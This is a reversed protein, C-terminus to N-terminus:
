KVPLYVYLKDIVKNLDMPKGIHDNMGANLCKEIDDRFVNATMAVIPITKANPLNLDRILRTAEFGDMEPMQIDMFILDYREPTERFLRVAEVGNQACDIQLLTPELLALLIERNIEVDEALLIRRGAFIGKIDPRAEDAQKFALGVCKNITDAIASPFLPKSLFEDVGAQKAEKRIENWEAASFLVIRSSRDSSELAKLRRTLEIGDIGPMKCDVFYIDYAGDRAALRLADEGNDATDCSIGFGHMIEQFYSLIDLDDDVALIRIDGWSAYQGSRAEKKDSGRKAQYIFSFTSGKGLESEIWIRGGMMEVINQSISLGLGTGGFRRATDTEAQTFSKFLRGQQEYSIGIGTDIVKIQITCIGDQEELLQANLTIAGREPTFKVANGLLNAIVQALRQDDGILLKPIKNDLRVMLNQKKGEVRFNVINVVRQIMKEFNFEEPSLDFKGAEIKSMDLIDNIVGLLHTSAEDIKTLCYDKREPDATAKGIAVMGIIANMPTRIEHSMNALFDSKARSAAQTAEILQKVQTINKLLIISGIQTNRHLVPTVEVRVYTNAFLQAEESVTERLEASRAKLELLWEYSINTFYREIFTRLEARLEINVPEPFLRLLAENHSLVCLQEDVVLYGDSILNMVQRLTIPLTTIFRYKLFAVAFCLMSLSSAASSVGFPLDALSFSYLMNPILTIVVGSVALLSQISFFGSNRFSAILMLVIGAVICVYSYLSHFYFYVGYAAESSNLSFHTFFLHHLPDTYVMVISTLPIILFVAHWPQLRRFPQLIAMGLNLIAVPTLCIGIYCFNIFQMYTVGTVSRFDMELLAGANWVTVVGLMVLFATRVQSRQCKWAVVVTLGICLLFSIHALLVIVVTIVFADGKITVLRYNQTNTGNWECFMIIKRFEAAFDIKTHTPLPQM